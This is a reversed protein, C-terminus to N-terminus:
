ACTFHAAAEGAARGTAMCATLLYGGTPAEWDLMEGACFVGPLARIMLRDDLAEFRVGGASSIAEEIPRPRLLTLRLGKIRRALGVLDSFDPPLTGERLLGARVGKIGAQKRLFNSISSSGRPLALRRALADQSRDPALDLSIVAEGTREIEDRLLASAAYVLSGELGYETIVFEGRRDFVAGTSDEFHMRVAKVPAGAFRDRFHGSWVVEFGCNAPRFPAIEVGRGRLREVWGGDSGLQPWSAGGLALVVAGPRVQLPGAGTEFLWAGTEDWGTWRHRGHIRVGQETLRMRWARLLPAADMGEPFVRDSSGVFTEFGLGAAWARVDGPGFRELFPALAGGRDGFRALFVAYPEAHTLNLGGMGAVLFKRGPSPKAEYLDVSAGAGAAAEAAMLGAPGGGIVAV